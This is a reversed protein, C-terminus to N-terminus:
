LSFMIRSPDCVEIAWIDQRNLKARALRAAEMPTRATVRTIEKTRDMLSNGLYWGEDPYIAFKARKGKERPKIQTYM